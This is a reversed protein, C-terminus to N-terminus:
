KVFTQAFSVANTNPIDARVTIRFLPIPPLPIGTKNDTGAKSVKPPLTDCKAVSTAGAANCIREIVWRVEVGSVADAYKAHGAGDFTSSMTGYNGQLIAPVGHASEGPQISAFYNQAASDSLTTAVTKSKYIANVSEEIAENVAPYSANRFALNGAVGATTDVARMLAVGALALIVMAILAVFLVVGRQRRQWQIRPSSIPKM